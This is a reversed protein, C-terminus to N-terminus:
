CGGCGGGCGDCGAKGCGGSCGGCGAMEQLTQQIEEPAAPRNEMVKGSFMLKKGALRMNFDMTVHDATIEVVRGIMRQGDANLMPLEAGVYIYEEDLKGDESFVTRPLDLVREDLHPGYADEVELTFQFTEGKQKDVINKEFAPLCEDIGSIFSFPHEESAKEVLPTRNGEPTRLEYSVAIYRADM